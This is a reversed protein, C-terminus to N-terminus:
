FDPNSAHNATFQREVCGNFCESKGGAVSFKGVSIDLKAMLETLAKGHM